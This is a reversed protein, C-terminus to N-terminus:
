DDSDDEDVREIVADLINVITAAVCVTVGTEILMIGAKHYQAAEQFFFPLYEYELFNGGRLVCVLGTLLYIFTGVGAWLAAKAGLDRLNSQTGLILRVCVIAIAIMGGAQFGGGPTHEGHLLVYLGYLVMFPIMIRFACDLIM